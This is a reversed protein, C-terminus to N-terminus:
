EKGKVTVNHAAERVIPLDLDYVHYSFMVATFVGLNVQSRSAVYRTLRSLAIFMPFAGLWADVTRAVLTADLTGSRLRFNCAIPSVPNPLDPDVTPDWFGLINFRTNEHARLLGIAREVQNLSDSDGRKKWKYLRRSVNSEEAPAEGLFGAAYTDILGSYEPPYLASACDSDAQFPAEVVVDAIERCPGRQSSFAVLLQDDLFLPLSAEWARAISTSSIHIAM